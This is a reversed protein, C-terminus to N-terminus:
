RTTVKKRMESVVSAMNKSSFLSTGAVFVNAGKEACRQATEFNIGGDVEIYYPHKRRIPHNAFFHVKDLVESMFKQGGFGPVVTMCLVLDVEALYPEVLDVETSPNLAIGPSCGLARISKLTLSIEHKAEVHVTIRHAGAKHFAQIYRDPNEIMLHVDLPLKTSRKFAATAEPGFSINPVFHGDMIDVHLWDGGAKEARLAEKGFCTFDAALISPAIVPSTMM